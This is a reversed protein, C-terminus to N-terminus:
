QYEWANKDKITGFTPNICPNKNRMEQPKSTKRRHVLTTPALSKPIGQM